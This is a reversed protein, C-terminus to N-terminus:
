TRRQALYAVGAGLAALAGLAGYGPSGEGEIKATATEDNEGEENDGDIQGGGGGSCGSLAVLGAVLTSLLLALKRRKLGELIATM